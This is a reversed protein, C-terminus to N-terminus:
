APLRRGTYWASQLVRRVLDNVFSRAHADEPATNADPTTVGADALYRDILALESRCPPAMKATRHVIYSARHM